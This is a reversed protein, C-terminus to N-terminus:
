YLNNATVLSAGEFTGIHSPSYRADVDIMNRQRHEPKTKYQINPYCATIQEM